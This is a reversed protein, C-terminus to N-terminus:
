KLNSNAFDWNVLKDLFGAIYAPRANRQDIYYAHEWVDMTLIPTLGDRIPCEADHGQDIALKGDAGQVLWVWGSGFHGAGAAKWEEVFKDYSGFAETIKDAIAGTPAGGGSPKMSKWFFNHNFIQAAQNFVKGTETKILDELTKETDPLLTNLTKVYTAHHRGYHYELSEGSMTPELANSAYPLDPLSFPKTATPLDDPMAMMTTRSRLSAVPTRADAMGLSSSSSFSMPKSAFPRQGQSQTKPRLGQGPALASLVPAFALATSQGTPSPSDEHSAVPVVAWTAVGLLMLGVGFGGFRMPWPGQRSNGDQSLTAQRAEVQLTGANQLSDQALM